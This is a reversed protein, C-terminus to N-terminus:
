KGPPCDPCQPLRLDNVAWRHVETIVDKTRSFDVPKYIQGVFDTPMAEITTDKLLACARGTMLMSGVEITLNYNLGRKLRDEFLALGFRCAWMHAAINAFLDQDLQRDSALHLTLGHGALAKRAERIIDRVPDLYEVDEKSTPFRTMCFVNTDFDFEDLMRQIPASWKSPALAPPLLTQQVHGLEARPMQALEASLQASDIHGVLEAVSGRGKPSLSWPPTRGRKSVLESSRLRSLADNLNKPPDIRLLEFMERVDAPTFWGDGTRRGALDSVILTRDIGSGLQHV